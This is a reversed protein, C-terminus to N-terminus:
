SHRSACGTLPYLCNLLIALDASVAFAGGGGGWGGHFPTEDYFDQPNPAVLIDLTAPALNKKNKGFSSSLDM